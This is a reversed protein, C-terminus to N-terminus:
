KTKRDQSSYHLMPLAEILVPPDGACPFCNRRYLAQQSQSTAWWHRRKGDPSQQCPTVNLSSRCGDNETHKM